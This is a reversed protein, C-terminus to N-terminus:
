AVPQPIAFSIGTMEESVEWLRRASEADHAAGPAKAKVPAGRVMWRPGYFAGGEADPSTVAYLQPLAGDASSQSVTNHMLTYTVWELPSKAESATTAQLNTSSLGPHASNSLIGTYGAENLRRQLENAFLINALKAQGYRGYRSYSQEASIDDFHMKGMFAASSSVSVIRADPVKVVLDILLATLAFHGLHNVGFQMEFGDKTERKPLAMLGANLRLIDIRDYKARYADAFARVSDLDGLDLAMIDLQADPVQALIENRATQAKEQNRCAMVIHAGKRALALTSEYGLGSNAGTILAIRGSQNPIDNHTWQSM